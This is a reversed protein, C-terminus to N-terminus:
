GVVSRLSLAELFGGLDEKQVEVVCHEFSDIRVRANTEQVVEQFALGFRNRVLNKNGSINQPEEPESDSSSSSDSDEETDDNEEDLEDLEDREARETARKSQREERERKKKERVAKRSRSEEQRKALAAFDVVGGGGGTGVVVYIGRDEDLGALVLPTGIARKGGIKSADGKEREQVQIAEAVWLALKTL